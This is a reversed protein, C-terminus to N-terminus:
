YLDFNKYADLEITEAFRLCHRLQKESWGNGYETKLQRSLTSVIQGGYEARKNNLVKENIRKGIQWYLLSMASNVAVAVQQRSKEILCKIDNFFQRSDAEISMEKRNMM